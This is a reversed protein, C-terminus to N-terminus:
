LNTVRNQHRLCPAICAKNNLALLQNVYRKQISITYTRLMRQQAGRDYPLDFRFQLILLSLYSEYVCMHMCVRGSQCQRRGCILPSFCIVSVLTDRNQDHLCVRPKIMPLFSIETNSTVKNTSEIPPVLM